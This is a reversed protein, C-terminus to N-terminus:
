ASFDLLLASLCTDVVIFRLMVATLRTAMPMMPITSTSAPKIKTGRGKTGPQAMTM